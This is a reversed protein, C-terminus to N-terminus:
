NQNAQNKQKEPKDQIGASMGSISARFMLGSGMVLTAEWSKTIYDNITCVDDDDDDNVIKWGRM